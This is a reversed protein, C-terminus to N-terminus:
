SRSPRAGPPKLVAVTGILETTRRQAEQVSSSLLTDPRGPSAEHGGPEYSSKSGKAYGIKIVLHVLIRRISVSDGHRLLFTLKNPSHLRFRWLNELTSVHKPSHLRFRWSNKLRISTDRRTSVSEGGSLSPRRKSGTRQHRRKELMISFFPM